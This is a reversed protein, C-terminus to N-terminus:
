PKKVKSDVYNILRSGFIVSGNLGVQKELDLSVASPSIVGGVATSIDHPRASRDREEVGLAPFPLDLQRKRNEPQQSTVIFYRPPTRGGPLVKGTPVSFVACHVFRM